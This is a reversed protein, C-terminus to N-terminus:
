RHSYQTSYYCDACRYQAKYHDYVLDGNNSTEDKIHLNNSNPTGDHDLVIDNDGSKHKVIQKLFVFSKLWELKSTSSCM